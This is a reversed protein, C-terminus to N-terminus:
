IAINQRIPLQTPTGITTATIAGGRDVAAFRFLRGFGGKM